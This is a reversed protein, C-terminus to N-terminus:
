CQDWRRRSTGAAEDIAETFFHPANRTCLYAVLLWASLTPSRCRLLCQGPASKLVASVACSSVLLNDSITGRAEYGLVHQM